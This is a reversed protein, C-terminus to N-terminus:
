EQVKIIAEPSICFRTYQHQMPVGGATVCKQAFVHGSWLQWVLFGAVVVIAAMFATEFKM